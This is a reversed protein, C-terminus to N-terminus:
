GKQQISSIGLQGRREQVPMQEVIIEYTYREKRESNTLLTLEIDVSIVWAPLNNSSTGERVILANEVITSEVLKLSENSLFRFFERRALARDLSQAGSRTYYTNYVDQLRRNYNLYNFSFTETIAENAFSVIEESEFSEKEEVGYVINYNEDVPIYANDPKVTANKSAGLFMIGLAVIILIFISNLRKNLEEIAGDKYIKAEYQQEANLEGSEELDEADLNNKDIDETNSNKEVKKKPPVSKKVTKKPEPKKKTVEKSVPKKNQAPKKLPENEVKSTKRPINKNLKSTKSEM